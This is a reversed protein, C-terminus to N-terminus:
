RTATMGDRRVHNTPIPHGGDREVFAAERFLAALAARDELDDVRIGFRRANLFEYTLAPGDADYRVLRDTDLRESDAVDEPAITPRVRVRAVDTKEDYTMHMITVGATAQQPAPGVERQADDCRRERHRRRVLSRVKGIAYLLPELSAFM